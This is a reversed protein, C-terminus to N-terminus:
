EHKGGIWANDESAWFYGALGGLIIWIVLGIGLSRAAFLAAIEPPTPGTLATPHPAGIIHPVLLAAIGAAWVGWNKGFAICAIGICSALATMAWWIQRGQLDSAANGPLEPPHGIAPMMQFAVFGAIGWLLGSRATVKRGSRESFAMLAVLVLAYGMNTAVAAGLSLLTRDGSEGEAHEHSDHDHELATGGNAGGFHVLEGTEYLEAELLVPTVFLQLLAAAILGTAFGAFIGSVLLRKFM